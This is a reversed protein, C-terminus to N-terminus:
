RAVERCSACLGFVQLWHEGIAYGSRRALDALLPSLDDGSFFEAAGCNTCLLLHEHGRAARLYRHCGDPLHVRQIFGLSELKELTRYVTVLGLGPSRSRGLDFVEVPSLARRSEALILAVLRRPATLRYGSALLGALWTDSLSADDTM